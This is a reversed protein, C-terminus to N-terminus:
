RACVIALLKDPNNATDESDSTARVRTTHRRQKLAIPHSIPKHVHHRTSPAAASQVRAASPKLTTLDAVIM